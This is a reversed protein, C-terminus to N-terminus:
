GVMSSNASISGETMVWSLHTSLQDIIIHRFQGNMELGVTVLAKEAPDVTHDADAHSCSRVDEGAKCHTRM